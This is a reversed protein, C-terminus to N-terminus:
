IIKLIKSFMKRSVMRTWDLKPSTASKWFDRFFRTERSTDAGFRTMKTHWDTAAVACWNSVSGTVPMRWFLFILVVSRWWLNSWLIPSLEGGLCKILIRARSHKATPCGKLMGAMLNVWSWRILESYHEGHACHQQSPRFYKWFVSKRNRSTYSRKYHNPVDAVDTPCPQFQPDSNRTVRVVKASM